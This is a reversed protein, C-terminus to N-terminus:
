KKLFNYIIIAVIIGALIALIIKVASKPYEGTIAGNEGNIVVQYTKKDYLYSTSYVPLMLLRYYENYWRVRMRIDRVHDYNRLVDSSALSELTNRM